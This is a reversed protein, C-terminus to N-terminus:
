VRRKIFGYIVLAIVVILIVHILAGVLDLVLGIIWIAVLIAVILWIINMTTGGKQEVGEERDRGSRPVYCFGQRM